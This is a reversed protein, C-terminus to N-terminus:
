RGGIPATQIAEFDVLAQNYQIVARLEAVRATALDRQALLVRFTDAMGVAFKKQEAELRKEAFQRASQTAQVRQLNTNVQRAADRVATAVQMELNQLATQSQRKELRARALNAEATSTGIPYGITVGLTWTPFDFAFVDGLVSRFSRQTSGIIPPPFGERGFEFETGGFAIANYTLNVNVDPLRQNSFYRVNIDSADIQKRTEILDTRNALANRVAADTDIAAPQLAPQESPEIRVAWFDPRSPNMILARLRDENTRITADAVIVAEENRAVEAEAEVIDIPAMTGVEVRTKNNKLQERALDLSQQAVKHNAIAFVLDWYANRVNRMTSTITQRLQVDAIERQNRTLLLNQRFADISFNRLLPQQVVANVQSSLQPNFSTFRTTESRAGNWTVQYNGGWPLVQQVGATTSFRDETITDASGSLFSEPPSTENRTSFTTFLAPTFAARAQAVSYDQIPPGLRETQIGLNQELALKVAEESTLRLVAGADTQPQAVLGPTKVPAPAPPTQESAFVPRGFGSLGTALALAAGLRVVGRISPKLRM